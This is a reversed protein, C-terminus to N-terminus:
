CPSSPSHRLRPDPLLQQSRLQGRSRLLRLSGQGRHPLPDRRLIAVLHLLGHPLIHDLFFGRHLRYPVGCFLRPSLHRPRCNPYHHRDERSPRGQGHGEERRLRPPDRRSASALRRHTNWPHPRPNGEHLECPTSPKGRRRSHVGSHRGRSLPITSTQTPGQKKHSRVNELKDHTADVYQLLVTSINRIRRPHQSLTHSSKTKTRQTKLLSFQSRMFDQLLSHAVCCWPHEFCCM